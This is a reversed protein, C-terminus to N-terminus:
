ICSFVVKWVCEKWIELFLRSMCKKGNEDICKKGNEDIDIFKDMVIVGVLFVSYM